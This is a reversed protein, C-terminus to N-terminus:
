TRLARWWLRGFGASLYASCGLALAWKMISVASTARVLSDTIHEPHDLLHLGVVNEIYDGAASVVPAVALARAVATDLPALEGLREAGVRLAVAYLAPHVFDPYYHSRFRATEAADMSGLVQRYRDASWATQVQLVRPGASGLLRVINAQSVVFIASWVILRVDRKGLRM